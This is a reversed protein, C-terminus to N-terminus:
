PNKISDPTHALARTAAHYEAIAIPTGLGDALQLKIAQSRACQQCFTVLVAKYM